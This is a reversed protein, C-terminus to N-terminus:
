PNLLSHDAPSAPWFHSDPLARAGYIAQGVRALNRQFDDVTLAQPYHSLTADQPAPLDTM